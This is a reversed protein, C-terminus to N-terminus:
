GVPTSHHRLALMCARCTSVGTTNALLARTGSACSGTPLRGERGRQPGHGDRLLMGPPSDYRTLLRQETRTYLMGEGRGARRGGGLGVGWGGVGM